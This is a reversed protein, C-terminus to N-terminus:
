HAQAQKELKVVEELPLHHFKVSGHGNPLMVRIAPNIEKKLEDKDWTLQPYLTVFDLLNKDSGVAFEVHELAVPYTNKSSKKHEPLEIISISRGNYIIPEKLKYTCINRGGLVVTSLLEGLSDLASAAAKFQEDTQVRYCMHDLEYASVDIKLTELDAFVTDLFAKWDGITAELLSM